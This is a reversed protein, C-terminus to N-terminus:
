IENTNNSKEKNKEDIKDLLDRFHTEKYRLNSQKKLGDFTIFKLVSKETVLNTLDIV